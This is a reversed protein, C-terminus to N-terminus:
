PRLFPPLLRVRAAPRPRRSPQTSGARPRRPRAAADPRPAARAAVGHALEGDASSRGGARRRAARPRGAPRRGDTKRGDRAARPRARAVGLDASTRNDSFIMVADLDRRELLADFTDHTAVAGDLDRLRARLRAGPEAAAVLRGHDGAALAALNGWVHDHSLGLVGVSLRAM